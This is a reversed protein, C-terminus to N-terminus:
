RHILFRIYGSRGLNGCQGLVGLTRHYRPSFLWESGRGESERMYGVSVLKLDWIEEQYVHKGSGRDCTAVRRGVRFQKLDASLCRKIACPMHM